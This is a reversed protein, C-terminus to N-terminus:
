EADMGWDFFEGLELYAEKVREEDFGADTVPVFQISLAGLEMIAKFRSVLDYDSPWWTGRVTLWQAQETDLLRKLNRTVM